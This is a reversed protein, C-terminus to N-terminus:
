RPSAVDVRVVGPLAAVRDAYATLATKAIPRTTVVEIATTEDGAFDGRLVDGVQRSPAATTQVRDDPTGFSIGLLPSAALLLLAIM